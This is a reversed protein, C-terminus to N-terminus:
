GYIEASQQACLLLPQLEPHLRPGPRLPRTLLLTRRPPRLTPREHQHARVLPPARTLRGWPDYSYESVLSGNETAIQTVSGLCDRGINYYYWGNGDTNTMVMPASYADGGLYLMETLIGEDDYECEYRGGLYYRSLVTDGDPDEITMQNREGDANYTIAAEYGESSTIASPLNRENYSAAITYPFVPAGAEPTFGTM